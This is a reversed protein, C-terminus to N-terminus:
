HEKPFHPSQHGVWPMAVQHREVTTSHQHRRPSRHQPVLNLTTMRLGPDTFANSSRPLTRRDCFKKM